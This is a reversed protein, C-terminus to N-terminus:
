IISMELIIQDGKRARAGPPVSQSRVSGRGVVRVRLGANELLYVADRAGMSVVNPVLGPRVTRNSFAVAEELKQTTVWESGSANNKVPIDLQRL